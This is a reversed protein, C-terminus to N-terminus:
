LMDIRNLEGSYNRSCSLVSSTLGSRRTMAFCVWKVKMPGLGGPQGLEPYAVRSCFLGLKGTRAHAQGHILSRRFFSKKVKGCRSPISSLKSQRIRGEKKLEVLSVKKRCGQPLQQTNKLLGGIILICWRIPSGTSQMVEPWRTTVAGRPSNERTPPTPGM